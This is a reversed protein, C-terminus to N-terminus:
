FDAFASDIEGNTIRVLDNEQVYNTLDVETTGVKEPTGDVVIYEDYVNNGSGENAILYITNADTMEETSTVVQKKNINALQQNVYTKTAMDTTATSIAETVQTKTALNQTATSIASNMQQTTVKDSIADSLDETTVFNQTAKSIAQTVDSATQYGAGNVLENNNSPVTVSNTGLTIKKNEIKADTIGYGAINTPKNQVNSWEVSDATGGGTANLTGDPLVEVGAGAKIGGLITKTAVPLTYNNANEAIGDLKNKDATSFNNDSLVKNGDKDVKTSVKADVKTKLVTKLYLLGENDLYKKEEAM